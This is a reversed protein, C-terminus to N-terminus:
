VNDADADAADADDDDDDDDDDNDDNRSSNSSSRCNSKSSNHKQKTETREYDGWARDRGEEGRRTKNKLDNEENKGKSHDARTQHPFAPWALCM